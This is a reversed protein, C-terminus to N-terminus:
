ALAVARGVRGVGPARLLREGALEALRHAEAFRDLAHVRVADPDEDLDTRAAHEGVEDALAEAVTRVPRDREVALAGLAKGGEPLADALERKRADRDIEPGSQSSAGASGSTFRGTPACM